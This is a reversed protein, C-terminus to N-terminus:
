KEVDAPKSIVILPYQGHKGFFGPAIEELGYLIRLFFKGATAKHVLARLFRVNVSRWVWIHYPMLPAIEKEMWAPTLKEIYTGTPEANKKDATTKSKRETKTQKGRKEAIWTGTIEALRVLWFNLRMLGSDTWGNVIVASCGPNLVRYLEQYAPRHDGSPLHHLTHLSVEGDFVQDSFPLHAVDAVVYLGKDAVRQRAEQLAVISIDMCVRFDYGESYTLYEPYQVPGSGADLLFRGTSALHRNVRLHCRHIYERSVPRLDEYRANQYFGDSLMQWGVQNYFQRVQNKVEVDSM